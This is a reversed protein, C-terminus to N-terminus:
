IIRCLGNLKKRFCFIQIFLSTHEYSVITYGLFSKKFKIQCNKYNKAQYIPQNDNENKAYISNWLYQYRRHGIQKWHNYQNSQFWNKKIIHFNSIFSFNYNWWCLNKFYLLVQKWVKAKSKAHKRGYQSSAM